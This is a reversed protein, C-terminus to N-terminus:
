IKIITQEVSGPYVGDFYFGDLTPFKTRFDNVAQFYQGINEGTDTNEGGIGKTFYYPSFYAMVRQKLSHATKLVRALEDPFRPEFAEHWSKWMMFESQLWLINGYPAWKKIKDDSPNAYEPKQWSGQWILRNGLSDKWRYPRPPGVSVWIEGNAGVEYSHQQNSQISQLKTNRIPLLAVAGFPDLILRHSSYEYVVAPKWAVSFDVLAPSTTRIMLMSDCNVKFIMGAVSKLIVAGTDKASVSLGSLVGSPFRVSLTQRKAGIRQNCQLTSDNSNFIFVAGTTVVEIIGAKAACKEVRMGWLSRMFIQDSMLDKQGIETLPFAGVEPVVLGADSAALGSSLM